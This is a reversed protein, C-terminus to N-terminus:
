SPWFKALRAGSLRTWLVIFLGIVTCAIHGVVSDAFFHDLLSWVGRWFFIVGLVAAITTGVTEVDAELKREFEKLLDAPLVEVATSGDPAVAPSSPDVAAPPQAAAAAPAALPLAPPAAEQVRTVVVAPSPTAAERVSPEAVPAANLGDRSFSPSRNSAVRTVVTRSRPLPALLPSATCSSPSRPALTRRAVLSQVM